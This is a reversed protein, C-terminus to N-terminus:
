PAAGSALANEAYAQFLALTNQRRTVTTHAVQQTCSAVLELAM